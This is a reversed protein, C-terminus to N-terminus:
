SMNKLDTWGNGDAASNIDTDYDNKHSHWHHLCSPFYNPLKKLLLVHM